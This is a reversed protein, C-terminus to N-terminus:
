FLSCQVFSFIALEFFFGVVLSKNSKKRVSGNREWLILCYYIYGTERGRYVLYVSFEEGTEPFYDSIIISTNSVSCKCLKNKELFSLVVILYISITINILAIPFILWLPAKSWLFKVLLQAYNGKDGRTGKLMSVSFTKLLYLCILLLILNCIYFGLNGGCLNLFKLSIDILCHNSLTWMTSLPLLYANGLDDQWPTHKEGKVKIIASPLSCFVTLNAFTM